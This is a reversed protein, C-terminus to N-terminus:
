GANGYQDGSVAQLQGRPPWGHSRLHAERDGAGARSGLAFAPLYASGLPTNEGYGTVGDDTILEVITSDFTEVFHKGGAWTYRGEILPLDVQYARVTKIKM